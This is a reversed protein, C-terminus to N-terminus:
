RSQVGLLFIACGQCKKAFDSRPGVTHHSDSARPHQGHVPFAVRQHVARTACRRRTRCLSPHGSKWSRQRSATHPSTRRPQRTPRIPCVRPERQRVATRQVAQDTLGRASVQRLRARGRRRDGSAHTRACAGVRPTPIAHAGVAHAHVHVVFLGGGLYKSFCSWGEGELSPSRGFRRKLSNGVCSGRDCGDVCERGTEAILSLTTARSPFQLFTPGRAPCGGAAHM